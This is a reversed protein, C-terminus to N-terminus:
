SLGGAIGPMSKQRGNPRLSGRGSVARRKARPQAPSPKAALANEKEFREAAQTLKLLTSYLAVKENENL